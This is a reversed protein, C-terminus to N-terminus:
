TKDVPQTQRQQKQTPFGMDDEDTDNHFQIHPLKVHPVLNLWAWRQAKWELHIQIQLGRRLLM